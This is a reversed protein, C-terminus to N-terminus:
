AKRFGEVAAAFVVLHLIIKEQFIMLNNKNRLVLFFPLLVSKDRVM